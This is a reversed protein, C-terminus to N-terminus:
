HNVAKKFAVERLQRYADLIRQLNALFSDRSPLRSPDAASLNDVLYDIKQMDGTFAFMAFDDDLVRRELGEVQVGDTGYVGSIHRVLAELSEDTDDTFISADNYLTWENIAASVSKGTFDLKVHPKKDTSGKTGLSAYLKTWLTELKKLYSKQQMENFLNTGLGVLGFVMNLMLPGYSDVSLGKCLFSHTIQYLYYITRGTIFNYVYGTDSEYINNYMQNNIDVATREGDNFSEFVAAWMAKLGERLRAKTEGNVAMDRYILVDDQRSSEDQLFEDFFAVNSEYRLNVICFRNLIPAMINFVFPINQKYNAASVVITSAPLKKGHGITREFVLQLMAGQVNEQVTSLEDLFLLSPINQKEHRIISRYWYPELLELRSEGSSKDEVRAQFGLIEEQTFRSGILTELHYGNRAAWNSVITSKALGPNALLLIPVGSHGSITIALEITDRIINIGM